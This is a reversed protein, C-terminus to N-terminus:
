LLKRIFKRVPNYMNREVRKVAFLSEVKYCKWVLNKSDSLELYQRLFDENKQHIALIIPIDINFDYQKLLIKEIIKVILKGFYFPLNCLLKYKMLVSFFKRDFQHVESFVYPLGDSVIREKKAFSSFIIEERPYFLESSIELNKSDIEEILKKLLEVEYMSGEIQSALLNNSFYNTLMKDQLARRSVWWLSDASCKRNHFINKKDKVYEYVGRKVLMDNSSHFIIKEADGLKIIYRINALHAQIIGGWQTEVQIPNILTNTLGAQELQSKLDDKSFNAGNSLHLIIKAESFYEEFNQMQDVIVDPKEHVPISIYIM